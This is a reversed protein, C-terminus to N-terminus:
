SPDCEWSKVSQEQVEGGWRKRKNLDAGAKREKERVDFGFTDSM